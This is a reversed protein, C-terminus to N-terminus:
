KVILQSIKTNACLIAYDDWLNDIQKRCFHTKYAYIIQATHETFIADVKIKYGINQLTIQCTKVDAGKDGIKAIIKNNNPIEIHHYPATPLIKEWAFLKGPDQKRLPAIDSHGLILEDKIDSFRNKLINILKLLSRYQLDTFDEDSNNELEIGISNNNINEQGQWSSKGAHWARKEPAIFNFVEGLKNILYHSSVKSNPDCFKTITNEENIVTHHIIITDIIQNKPRLNFNPSFIQEM